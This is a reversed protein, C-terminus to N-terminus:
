ASDDEEHGDHDPEDPKRDGYILAARSGVDQLKEQTSREPGGGGGTMRMLALWIGAYVLGGVVAMMALSSWDRGGTEPNASILYLVLWLGALPMWLLIRRQRATLGRGHESSGQGAM